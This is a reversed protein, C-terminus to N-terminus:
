TVTNVTYDVKRKVIFKKHFGLCTMIVTTDHQIGNNLNNSHFRM